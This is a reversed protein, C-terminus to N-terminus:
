MGEAETLIIRFVRLTVRIGDIDERDCEITKNHMDTSVTVNLQSIFHNNNVVGISQALIDGDSCSGAAGRESSYRSHRLIIECDFASRHWVTAVGGDATCKFTLQDGPCACHNTIVRSETTGFNQGFGLAIVTVTALLRRPSAM